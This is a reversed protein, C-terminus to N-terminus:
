HLQWQFSLGCAVDSRLQIRNSNLWANATYDQLTIKINTMVVVDTWTGYPNSYASGSCAGGNDVHGALTIPHTITQNPTIGTICTGSIEFNGYVHMRRCAERSVEEIYSYKGNHVDMTYFFIGCRKVTRDIEVKCQIVKVSKFENLQFLQIYVKSANVIQQPIDCEEINILSLTTLTPGGLVTSTL